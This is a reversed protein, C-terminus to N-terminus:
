IIRISASLLNTKVKSNRRSSMHSSTSGHAGLADDSLEALDESQGSKLEATVLIFFVCFNTKKLLCM